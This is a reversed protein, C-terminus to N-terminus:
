FPSVRVVKLLLRSCAFVIILVRFVVVLLIDKESSFDIKKKAFHDHYRRWSRALVMFVM